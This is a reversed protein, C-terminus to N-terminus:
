VGFKTLMMDLHKTYHTDIIRISILIPWILYLWRRNELFDADLPRIESYADYFKAPVNTFLNLMALDMESHGYYLAPDIFAAVSGYNCLINGKTLDGHLLSPKIDHTLLSPLKEILAEIRDEYSKDLKGSEICLQYGWRLRQNGFFDIWNMAVSNPQNLGLVPTDIEFGCYDAPANHLEALKRAVDVASTKTMFSDTYTVLEMLLLGPKFHVIGPIPLETMNELHELMLLEDKITDMQGEKPVKVVFEREDDLLLRLTMSTHHKGMPIAKVVRNGVINAIDQKLNASM